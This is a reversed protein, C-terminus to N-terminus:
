LRPAQMVEAPGAEDASASLATASQGISGLAKGIETWQMASDRVRIGARKDIAAAAEMRLLTDYASLIRLSACHFDHLKGCLEAALAEARIIEKHRTPPISAILGDLRESVKHARATDGMTLLEEALDTLAAIDYDSIAHQPAGLYPALAADYTKLAEPLNGREREVRGIGTLGRARSRWDWEPMEALFRRATPLDKREIAEMTIAWITSTRHDVYLNANFGSIMQMARAYDGTRAAQKAYAPALRDPDGFKRALDLEGTEIATEGLAQLAVNQMGSDISRAVKFGQVLAARAAQANGSRRQLQSLARYTFAAQFADPMKGIREALPETFWPKIPLDEKEDFTEVLRRYEGPNADALQLAQEYVRRAETENGLQLYRASILPLELPPSASLWAAEEARKLLAMREEAAMDPAQRGIEIFAWDRFTPELRMAAEIAETAFGVQARSRPLELAKPDANEAKSFAALAAERWQGRAVLEDIGPTQALADGCMFAMFMGALLLWASKQQRKM